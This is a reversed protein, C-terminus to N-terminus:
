PGGFLIISEIPQSLRTAARKKSFMKQGFKAWIRVWNQGFGKEIVFKNKVLKEKQKSKLGRCIENASL